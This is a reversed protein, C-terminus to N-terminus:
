PPRGGLGRGVSVDGDNATLVKDFHYEVTHSLDHLERTKGSRRYGRREYLRHADLFRTDSWLEVRRAGRLLAEAEVLACLRSGLGARRETKAVYLKRLEVQESGAPTYGGCAVVRGREAPASDTGPRTFVYFRGGAAAFHAAIHRLEPMEGDVDLVCGPYEAFVAAFLAILDAADDDLADRLQPAAREPM